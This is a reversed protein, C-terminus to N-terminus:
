SEYGPRPLWFGAYMRQLYESPSLVLVQLVTQGFFVGFNRQDGTILHTAGSALAAALVPWGKVAPEMARGLKPDVRLAVTIEVGALLSM